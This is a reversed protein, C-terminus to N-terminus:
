HHFQQQESFINYDLTFLYKGFLLFNFLSHEMELQGSPCQKEYILQWIAIKM